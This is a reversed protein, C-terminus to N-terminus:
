RVSVDPLYVYCVSAHQYWRFMSNIATSLEQVTSKNICCTDVWFYDLGDRKTQQACFRLKNNDKGRGVMLDDYTVEEGQIWTHSLIAYPPSNDNDFSVLRLDGDLSCKLLRIGACTHQPMQSEYAAQPDKRLSGLQTTAQCHNARNQISM